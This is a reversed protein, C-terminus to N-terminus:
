LQRSIPLQQTWTFQRMGILRSADRSSVYILEKDTRPGSPVQGASSSTIGVIHDAVVAKLDTIATVM